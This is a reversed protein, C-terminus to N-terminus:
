CSWPVLGITSVLVPKYLQWHPHHPPVPYRPREHEHYQRLGHPLYAMTAPEGLDDPLECHRVFPQIEQLAERHSHTETDLYIDERDLVCEAVQSSPALFEQSKM